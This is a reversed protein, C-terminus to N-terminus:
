EGWVHRKIGEADLGALGLREVTRGESNLDRGILASALTVTAEMLPMPHGIARGLSAMPVVGTCVDEWFFRHDVASPAPYRSYTKCTQLSDYLSGGSADMSEMLYYQMSIAETGLAAALGLREADLQAVARAVAPSCGQVYWLFGAPNTEVWGANFVLPLSHCTPGMNSIGTSLIDPAAALPFDSLIELARRTDTAPMAAFPLAHKEDALEVHGPATVKANVIHSSVEAVLVGAGGHQAGGERLGARFDLAGFTRGPVLFVLQGPRTYPAIQKAVSRHADATTCVAILSVGDMAEALDTTVLDIPALGTWWGSSELAGRERIPDLWRRVEGELPRNWLQVSYGRLVLYAAMGQGGFGAGLVAAKGREGM